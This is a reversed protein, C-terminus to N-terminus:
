WQIRVIQVRGHVSTAVVRGRADLHGGLRCRGARTTPLPARPARMPAPEAPDRQGHGDDHDGGTADRAVVVDPERPEDVVAQLASEFARSRADERAGDLDPASLLERGVLQKRPQVVDPVALPWAEFRSALEGAHGELALLELTELAKERLERDQARVQKRIFFNPWISEGLQSPAAVILNELVSLFPLVRTHQFTRVLGLRSISHPPLREISRDKFFIRGRDLRYFGTIVHFLTSKGSGNPGVLGTIGEDALEFSVDNVAQLAGFAKSVSQLRLMAVKFEIKAM